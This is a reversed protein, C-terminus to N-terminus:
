AVLLPGGGGVGFRSGGRSRATGGNARGGGGGGGVGGGDGYGSSRKAAAADDRARQREAEIDSATRQVLHDAAGLWDLAEHERKSVPTAIVHEFSVRPPEPIAREMASLAEDRNTPPARGPFPTAETMRQAMEGVLPPLAADVILQRLAARSEQRCAEARTREIKLAALAERSVAEGRAVQQRAAEIIEQARRQEDSPAGQTAQVRAAEAQAGLETSPETAVLQLALRKRLDDRQAHKEIQQGLVSLLVRQSMTFSKITREAVASTVVETYSKHIAALHGRAASLRAVWEASRAYSNGFFMFSTAVVLALLGHSAVQAVRRYSRIVPLSPAVVATAVLLLLLVALKKPGLLAVDELWARAEGIQLTWASALELHHEGVHHLVMQMALVGAVGSGASIAANRINTLLISRISTGSPRVVHAAIALAVALCLWWVAPRGHVLASVALPIGAAAAIVRGCQRTGPRRPTCLVILGGVLCLAVSGLPGLWWSLAGAGAGILLRVGDSCAGPDAPPKSKMYDSFHHSHLRNPTM